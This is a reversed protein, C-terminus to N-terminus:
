AAITSATVTIATSLNGGADVARVSFVYETEATLGTATYTVTPKTVNALFVGDKYVKYGTFNADISATWNLVISTATITGTVLASPPTPAVTDIVGNNYLFNYLQELPIQVIGNVSHTFQIAQTTGCCVLKCECDSIPADFQRVIERKGNKDIRYLSGDASYITQKSM